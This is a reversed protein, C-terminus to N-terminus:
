RTLVSTPSVHMVMVVVKIAADVTPCLNHNLIQIGNIICPHSESVKVDNFIINIICFNLINYELFVM